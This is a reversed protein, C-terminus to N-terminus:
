PNATAHASRSEPPNPPRYEQLHLDFPEPLYEQVCDIDSATLQPVQTCRFYFRHPRKRALKFLHELRLRADEAQVTGGTLLPYKEWPGKVDVALTLDLGLDLATEVPEPNMGNTDLKIPLGAPALEQLLTLFDPFLTPEGGTIVIGELWQLRSRIHKKIASPSVPLLEEPNWALQANHCTPCRLNCGGMFLVCSVRGPWDCLSLREFGLVRRWPDTHSHM